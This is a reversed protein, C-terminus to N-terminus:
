LSTGARDFLTQSGVVPRKKLRPAKRAYEIGTLYSAARLLVDPRDKALGLMLNHERCIMGRVRGDRHDHDM